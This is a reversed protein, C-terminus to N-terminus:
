WPHPLVEELREQSRPPDLVLPHGTEVMKAIGVPPQPQSKEWGFGAKCPSQGCWCSCLGPLPLPEQLILVM